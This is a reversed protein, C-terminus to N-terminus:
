LLESCMLKQWTDSLPLKFEFNIELKKKEIKETFEYVIKVTSQKTVYWWNKPLKKKKKQPPYRVTVSPISITSQRAVEM